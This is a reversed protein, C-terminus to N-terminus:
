GILTLGPGELRQFSGGTVLRGKKDSAAFGRGRKTAEKFWKLYRVDEAEDMAVDSDNADGEDDGSSDEDSTEANRYAKKAESDTDSGSDSDSITIVGDNPTKRKRPKSKFAARKPSINTNDKDKQKIHIHSEVCKWCPHSPLIFVNDRRQAAIAAGALRAQWNGHASMIITDDSPDLFEAWSDSAILPLHKKSYESPGHQCQGSPSVRIFNEYEFMSLVDLDGVWEGRDHVSVLSELYYAEATREGYLGLDVPTSAGTFSLHLTTPGFANQSKGDFSRQSLIATTHKSVMPQPPPVLLSIGPHDVAGILHKIDTKEEKTWPDQLLAAAVYLSNSSCVAMVKEFVMPDLDLTGSEFLVICAFADRRTLPQDKRLRLWSQAWKSVCLPQSQVIGLSVPVDQLKDYVTAAAGFTKLSPYYFSDERAKGRTSGIHRGDEERATLDVLHACLLDARLLKEELAFQILSPMLIRAPDKHIFPEGNKTEVVIGEKVYLGALVSHGFCLSYALSPDFNRTDSLNLDEEKVFFSDQHYGMSEVTLRELPQVYEPGEIGLARDRLPPTFKHYEEERTFLQCTRSGNPHCISTCPDCICSGGYCPTKTDDCCCSNTPRETLESMRIWRIPVPLQGTSARRRKKVGSRSGKAHGWSAYEYWNHGTVEGQGVNGPQVMYRIVVDQHHVKLKDVAFRLLKIRAEPGDLMPFLINCDTLGFLPAPHMPRPGLFVCKPRKGFAIMENISVKKAEEAHSYTEAADALPSFWSFAFLKKYDSDAPSWSESRSKLLYKWIECILKEMTNLATTFADIVNEYNGLKTSVPLSISNAILNLQVHKLEMAQDAAHLWNRASNDWNQLQADTVTIRSASLNAIDFTQGQSLQALQQTRTTVVERWIALAQPSSWVRAILSAFLQAGIAGPGSTAAAWISTGDAGVHDAFFGHDRTGSPNVAPSSAIDSSRIGYARVLNPCEPMLGEFLAGLKRAVVHLPGNEAVQKRTPALAAGLSQFETPPEVKILSFDLHNSVLSLNTSQEASFWALSLKDLVSM